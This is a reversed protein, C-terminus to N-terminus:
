KDFRSRILKRYNDADGIGQPPQIAEKPLETWEGKADEVKEDKASGDASVTKYSQVIGNDDLSLEARDGNDHFIEAKSVKYRFEVGSVTQRSSIKGSTPDYSEVCQLNWGSTYMAAGKPSLKYFLCMALKGFPAFYRIEAEENSKREIEQRVAGNQSFLQMKVASGNSLTLERLLWRQGRTPIIQFIQIKGSGDPKLVVDQVLGGSEAFSQVTLTADAAKERKERLKGNPYYDVSWEVKGEADYKRHQVLTKRDSKAYLKFEKLGGFLEFTQVGFTEDRFNIQTEVPAGQPTEVVVRSFELSDAPMMETRMKLKPAAPETQAAKTEAVEQRTCGSGLLACLPILALFYRFHSKNM